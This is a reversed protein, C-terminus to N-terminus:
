SSRHRGEPTSSGARIAMRASASSSAPQVIVSTTPCQRLPPAWTRPHQTTSISRPFSYHSTPPMVASSCRDQISPATPYTNGIRQEMGLGGSCYPQSGTDKDPAFPAGPSLPRSISPFVASLMGNSFAVSPPPQKQHRSARLPGSFRLSQSPCAKRSEVFGVFQVKRPM